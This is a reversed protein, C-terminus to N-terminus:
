MKYVSHALILFYLEPVLLNGTALARFKRIFDALRTHQQNVFVALSRVTM